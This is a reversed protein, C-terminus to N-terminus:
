TTYIQNCFSQARVWGPLVHPRLNYVYLVSTGEFTCINRVSSCLVSTSEYSLVKSRPYM